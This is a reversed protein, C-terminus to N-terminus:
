AKIIHYLSVAKVIDSTNRMTFLVRDKNRKIEFIWYDGKKTVNSEIYKKLELYNKFKINPESCNIKFEYGPEFIEDEVIDFSETIIFDPTITLPKDCSDINFLDNNPGDEAM